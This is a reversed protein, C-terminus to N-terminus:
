GAELAAVKTELTEIREKAENLAQILVATMRGYDVSLTTGLQENLTEPNNGAVECWGMDSVLEPFQAQVEQALLGIEVGTGISRRQQSNEKWTYKVPQINALKDLCGTLNSDVDKLRSDSVNPFSTGAVAGNGYFSYYSSTDYYGVIGYTNSQTSYALLGGSSYSTSTNTQGYLGYQTAAGNNAVGYVGYFSNTGNAEGTIGQAIQFGQAYFRTGSTPAVGVGINGNSGIRMRETDNTGFLIDLGQEHFIKGNRNSDQSIFFGNATGNDNSWKLKQEPYNSGAEQQFLVDGNSDIRLQETPSSGGDATTSFVLRGPYDSSGSGGWGTDAEGTIFAAQNGTSNTFKIQGLSQGATAADGKCLLIIGEGTSSDTNANFQAIGNGHSSSDGVLLRGSSDLRARESGATGFELDQTSQSIGISARNTDSEYDFRLTGNGTGGNNIILNASNVGSTATSGVRASVTAGSSTSLIDLNHSPSSTGIGIRDNGADVFLMHTQGNSEVRFDVDNSVDNFVAESTSIKLREAGGTAFGIEDADGSFIGTNVDDAFALGPTSASGDEILMTGDLERLTIWGDNAANRIKLVNANTDAWWQYAYTTGPESSGSHNTFLAALQGNLDSRVAAGTGNAVVGDAQAV